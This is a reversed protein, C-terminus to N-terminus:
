VKLQYTSNFVKEDIGYRDGNNEILYGGAFIRMMEGWPAMFEVNKHIQVAKVRGLSKYKGGPIKEYLRSFKIPSVVYREGSPNTIIYDGKKASNRTEEIIGNKSHVSTIILEDERAEEATVIVSKEFTAADKFLNTFEEAYPDILNFEPDKNSLM